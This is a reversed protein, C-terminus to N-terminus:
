YSLYTYKPEENYFEAPIDLHTEIYEAMKKMAPIEAFSHEIVIINAGSEALQIRLGVELARDYVMVLLDSGRDLAQFTPIHCGVGIAVSRIITKGNGFYKIGYGGIASLRNLMDKSFTHLTVPNISYLGISNKGTTVTDNWPHIYDMECILNDLGLFQAFADRIGYKPFHDWTDHLNMATLDYRALIDIKKKAWPLKFLDPTKSNYAFAQEHSIFLDCGEQGAKILNKDCASFGVGIKKLDADPNGYRIQDVTISRDVWPSLDLFYELLQRATM